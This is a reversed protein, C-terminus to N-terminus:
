YKKISILENGCIGTCNNKSNCMKFSFTDTLHECAIDSEAGHHESATVVANKLGSIILLKILHIKTGLACLPSHEIRGGNMWGGKPSEMATQLHPMKNLILLACCYYLESIIMTIM